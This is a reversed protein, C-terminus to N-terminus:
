SATQLENARQAKRRQRYARNYDARCQLCYRQSRSVTVVTTYPTGCKPCEDVVARQVNVIHVVPELHRVNVCHRVRCLHDLELGTPVEGFFAQWALRHVLWNKQKYFCRAYGDPSKTLRWLHCGSYADVVIRKSIYAITSMDTM